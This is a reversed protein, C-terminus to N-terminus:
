AQRTDATALRTPKAKARRAPLLHAVLNGLSRM